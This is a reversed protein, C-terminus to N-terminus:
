ALSKRLERLAHEVTKSTLSSIGLEKKLYDVQVPRKQNWFWTLNHKEWQNLFAVLFKVERRPTPRRLLARIKPLADIMADSNNYFMRAWLRARETHTTTEWLWSTRFAPAKLGTLFDLILFIEKEGDFNAGCKRLTKRVEDAVVLNQTLRKLDAESPMKPPRGIHPLHTKM